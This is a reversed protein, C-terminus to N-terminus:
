SLKERLIIRIAEPRSLPPTQRGIWADLAALDIPPLTLHISTADIRPRGRKVTRVIADTMKLRYKFISGLPLDSKGGPELRLRELLVVM